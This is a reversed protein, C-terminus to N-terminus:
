IIFNIIILNIKLSFLLIKKFQLNFFRRIFYFKIFCVYIILYFVMLIIIFIKLKVILNFFIIILKLIYKNINM